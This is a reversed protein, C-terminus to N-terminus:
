GVDRRRFGYFGAAGVLTAAALIGLLPPAAFAELPYQPTHTFPSVGRVWGPLDVLDAFIMIFACFGLAAWGVAAAARPAWGFGAVAVALVAWVAPVYILAIGMVRPIQGADDVAAAYALGEGLGAAALGVVGGVMAIAVHSALWSWRSTHTALVPEARGATEEGRARLTGSVAYATALLAAFVVSLSLYADVISDTGGPFYTAVDPNDAIFQEISNAFSGYAAGLIFLGTTWGVLSARHLRWALGLPSGLSGPATAPGPRTRVFGAGFDRREMLTLALAVLGATVLAPLLLPWWRDAVYPLTQQGWGIPSLWSLTGSGADGAARLVYALGLLAGM